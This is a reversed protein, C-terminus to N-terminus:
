NNLIYFSSVIWATETRLINTWLYVKIFNNKIFIIEEEESFGWEPWIFININKALGLNLDKLKKSENKNTHFFIKEWILNDFYIKDLFYIKPIFNKNSQEASEIIIKQFRQIKNENLVLKQSRSARFFIFEKIWIQTWKDIIDEIKDIKNPISQYLFINKESDINKLIKDLFIFNINKKNIEKIEYLYDINNEWNFFIFKDGIKARLVNIIQHFIDKDDLFFDEWFLINLYIRQM